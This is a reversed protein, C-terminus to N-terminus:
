VRGVVLTLIQRMASEVDIGTLPETFTVSIGVPGVTAGGTAGEDTVGYAAEDGIGPLSKAESNAMAAAWLQDFGIKDEGTWVTVQVYLGNTGFAGCDTLGPSGGPSPGSLPTLGAVGMAQALEADTILDACEYKKAEGTAQGTSAAASPSSEPSASPEATAVPSPNSSAAPTSGAVSAPAASGPSVSAGTTCGSALAAVMAILGALAIPQRVM